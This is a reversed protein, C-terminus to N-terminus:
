PRGQTRPVRKGFGCPPPAEAVTMEVLISLSTKSPLGEKDRLKDGVSGCTEGVSGIDPIAVWTSVLELRGKVEELFFAGWRRGSRIGAPKCLRGLGGQSNPRPSGKSDLSLGASELSKLDDMDDYRAAELLAEVRELSTEVPSDGVTNGGEGMQWRRFLNYYYWRSQFQNFHSCHIRLLSNTVHM